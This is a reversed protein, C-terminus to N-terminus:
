HKKGGFLGGVASLGGTVASLGAGAVNEVASLGEGAVDGVASVGESVGSAVNGVASLGEGAGGAVSGVTSLGAGVVASLGESVGGAVNGVTSLGGGVINGAASLGGGMVDGVASLGDGATKVLKYSAEMEDVPILPLYGSITFGREDTFEVTKNYLKAVAEVVPLVFESFEAFTPHEKNVQYWVQAIVPIAAVEITKYATQLLAKTATSSGSNGVVNQTASSVTGTVLGATNSTIGQTINGFLGGAQSALGTGTQLISSIGSSTTTNTAPTSEVHTTTTTSGKQFPTISQIFYKTTQLFFITATIPPITIAQTTTVIRKALPKAEYILNNFEIALKKIFSPAYTDFKDDVFVFTQEVLEKLNKYIPGFMPVVKNEISVITTRYDGSNNKAFDYVNSLIAVFRVVINKWLGLYKLDATSQETKVNGAASLGGGVVNGVTSLGGGVVNGVNSVGGLVNEATSLGGGLINGTTSLGGGVINGAASLGDGATKVLKYAARMEDVPILPLYGSIFFDREYATQLLVKTATSSGSSVARTVASTATNALGATNSTIGQTVNGFLGGAQSALGTGTQLISGIGSSTTTDSTPTTEVPTKTTTSGKQLPTISQIFYKTTATIPPITIAQTTTVIRKALPKAEYILNNFEIALKKIFSPAYTDFKDDVFVLTQEVLGKINKYIPGFIPVVKNEISVVTTKFDGSNEKAFDYVNSLVVVFRVVIKKWLGLYKFETTSQKVEAEKSAM